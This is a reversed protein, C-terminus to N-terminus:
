GRGGAGKPDFRDRLADGLFNFGLVTIAIALGPFIALHPAKLLYTCGEDALAGWSPTGPPVGLGLFSLSAETLIAGPLGFTAQVLLPGAVNPLLHGFVIRMPGAGMSRAALVFERDRLARVEGRVLRAYGTWGGFSLAFVVNWLSPGLVATIFIALLIGPFALLIDVIRMLVGDFWGGAYGAIAGLVSGISLSIAVASGGVILSVRAGYIIHSLVDIGNNGTGLWHAISPPAFQNPLNLANPDYPSLWPAFVAALVLAVGVGAGLKATAPWGRAVRAPAIPAAEAPLEASM